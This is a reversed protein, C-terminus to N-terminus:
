VRIFCGSRVMRHKVPECMNYVMKINLCTRMAKIYPDCLLM